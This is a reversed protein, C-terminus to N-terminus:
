TSTGPGLKRERKPLTEGRIVSEGSPTMFQLFDVLDGDIILRYYFGGEEAKKSLYGLFRKFSQDFFFDELKSLYGNEDWGESLHLDSIIALRYSDPESM